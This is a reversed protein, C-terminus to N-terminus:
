AASLKIKGILEGDTKSEDILHAYQVEFVRDKEGGDFQLKFDGIPTTRYFQLAKAVDATLRPVIKMDSATYIYGASRGIGLYKAGSAATQNNGPNNIKALTAATWESLPVKSRCEDGNHIINCESKGFQDVNRARNQPKITSEIGGSTHGVAVDDFLVSAPGSVINDFNAM